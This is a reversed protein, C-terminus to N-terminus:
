GKRRHVRSAHTGSMASGMRELTEARQREGQARVKGWFVEDPETAATGLESGRKVQRALSQVHELNLGTADAIESATAEPHAALHAAVAARGAGVPVKRNRGRNAKETM